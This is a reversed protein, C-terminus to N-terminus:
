RAPSEPPQVASPSSRGPSVAAALFSFCMAALLLLWASASCVLGITLSRLNFRFVLEHSGAPVLVGSLAQDLVFVPAPAGDVLAHWGPFYPVALRMVSPTAATYQIRYLSGEYNTIRIQAATDQRYAGPNGTLLTGAAPDLVALSGAQLVVPPITARPLAEPNPVIQGSRLDLRHTVSLGNLLKPNTRAAIMYDHYTQLELPNYGYTAELQSALAGNLPGFINNDSPAYFRALPNARLPETAADFSAAANEYLTKFSKRAYALQNGQMNCVYVNAFAVAALAPILWPKRFRTSLFQAGAAALVALVLAAVFWIHVPARVSRFGPILAVAQYLGASPGLAYWLVPVLVALATVRLAKNTLGLAALFPLLLGGYFYFQTIDPPGHYPGQIAGFYNPVFLTLLAGPVLTSNTQAHFDAQARISEAALEVAPLWTIASLAVVAAIAASLFAVAKIKRLSLAFLFLAFFSYLATQFHGAMMLFAGIAACVTGYRWVDLLIARRFSWLLWPFLAAGQFIGIHSSHAAFFGSFAYLIGALIAPEASDLLDFALLWAGICAIAAHLALEWEISRPTIGTLFFPWNLPYWAGIEPDALLPMGSFTYPTWAPLRGHLIQDSFYKQLSYHVDVADWQISAQDSFLPVLYFGFVLLILGAAIVPLRYHAYPSEIPLSPKAELVPAATRTKKQAM